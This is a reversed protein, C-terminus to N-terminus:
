TKELKITKQVDILQWALNLTILECDSLSQILADEPHMEASKRAGAKLQEIVKKVDSKKVYIAM